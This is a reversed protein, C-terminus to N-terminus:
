RSAEFTRALGEDFRVEPRWGLLREAKTIDLSQRFAFLGLGYPTARPEAGGTLRAVGEIVKAAQLVPWFPLSKWRVRLGARAAAQEAIQRVPLVEGGSLHFVEGKVRDGANLAAMVGNVVDDVHTLDIAARGARFRPLPGQRAANLLRPLLAQDGVGYIGRPRLVVCNLRTEALIIQEALAKTRAYHNVPRPLVADERVREQDKFAFTVSPSSIHVMGEVGRTVAWDVLAQTATVNAAEFHAARGFPSSLAACHILRGIDAPVEPPGHALDHEVVEFGADALRRLAAPNRGLGVVAVGEARLRHMLAGGLFGTAGTVLVRARSV